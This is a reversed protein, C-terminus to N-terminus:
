PQNPNRTEAAPHFGTASPLAYRQTPNVEAPAIDNVIVNCIGATEWSGTLELRTAEVTPLWLWPKDDGARDQNSRNFTYALVGAPRGAGVKPKEKLEAGGGSSGEIPEFTRTQRYSLSDNNLQRADWNLLPFEPLVKDSRKGTASTERGVFLLNRILNGVRLVQVNNLGVVIGSVIRESWYQVTGYNPPLQAQPRGLADQANPLSWSELYCKVEVKSGAKIKKPEKKWLGQAGEAEPITIRVRYPASANQNGICGTGDHHSIEVPIRLQQRYKGSKGTTLTTFNPLLRPDQQYAYGGFYNALFTNFGTLPGFIPAGNTDLLTINTLGTFTDETEETAEEEQEPVLIDLWIARLYGYSPVNFETTEQGMKATVERTIIPFPESHEHASAIFPIPAQAPARTQGGALRGYKKVLSYYKSPDPLWMDNPDAGPVIMPIRGDMDIVRDPKSLTPASVTLDSL